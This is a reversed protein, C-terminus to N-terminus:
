ELVALLRHATSKNLELKEGIECASRPQGSAALLNVISLARDIVQVKYTTSM